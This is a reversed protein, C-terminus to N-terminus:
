ESKKLSVIFDGVQIKLQKKNLWKQTQNELIKELYNKIDDIAVYFKEIDDYNEVKDIIDYISHKIPFEYINSIEYKLIQLEDLMKERPYYGEELLLLLTKINGIIKYLLGLDSNFLEILHKIMKEDKSIKSLSYFRKLAKFLNGNEVYYMFDSIINHIFENKKIDINEGRVFEFINSFETFINDIYAIVDIKIITKDKIADVFLKERDPYLKKVGAIIEEPEWRLTYLNRCYEYLEEFDNISLIEDLVDPELYESKSKYFQHIKKVNDLDQYLEDDLGCKFDVFYVDEDKMIDSIIEKFNNWIENKADEINKSKLNIKTFLDFDNATSGTYKNNASGKVAPIINDYSILHFVEKVDEPYQNLTKVEFLYNM